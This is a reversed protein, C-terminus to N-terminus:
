YNSPKQIMATLALVTRWNRTTAPCGALREITLNDLKTRGYGGPCYLYVAGAGAVIRETPTRRAELASAVAVADAEGGLPTVHLHDGEAGTEVPLPNAAVMALWGSDGLVMAEAEFGCEKLIAERVRTADPMGEVVANGSQVYTEVGTCGLGELLAKFAPMALRNKGGVNVGRLLVVSKM